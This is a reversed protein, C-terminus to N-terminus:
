VQNINLLVKYLLELEKKKYGFQVCEKIIEPNIANVSEFDVRLDDILYENM